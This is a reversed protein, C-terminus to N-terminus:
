KDELTHWDYRAECCIVQFDPSHWFVQPLAPNQASLFVEEQNRIAPLVREIKLWTGNHLALLIRHPDTNYLTAGPVEYQKRLERATM